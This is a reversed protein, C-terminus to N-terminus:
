HYADGLATATILHTLHIICLVYSFPLPLTTGTSLQDGHWSSTNPSHLYPVEARSSPSHDAEREPQKVWLFLSVLVWQIPTQTPWLLFM